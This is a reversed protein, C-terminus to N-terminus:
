RRRWPVTPPLEADPAPVVESEALDLMDLMEKRSHGRARMKRVFEKAFELSRRDNANLM